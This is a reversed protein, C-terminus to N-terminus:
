SAKDGGRYMMEAVREIMELGTIDRELEEIYGLVDKGFTTKIQDLYKHQMEIRKKLYVPLGEAGELDEPLVRNVVYGAIPVDFKAFM